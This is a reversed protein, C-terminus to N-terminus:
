ARRKRWSNALESLFPWKAQPLWVCIVETEVAGNRGWGWSFTLTYFMVLFTNGAHELQQTM